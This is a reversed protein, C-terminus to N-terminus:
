QTRRSSAKVLSIHLLVYRKLPIERRYRGLGHVQRCLSQTIHRDGPPSMIFSQHSASTTYPGSFTRFVCGRWQQIATSIYINCAHHYQFRRECSRCSGKPGVAIFICASILSADESLLYCTWESLALTAARIDIIRGLVSHWHTCTSANTLTLPM